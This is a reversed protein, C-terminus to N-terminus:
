LEVEESVREDLCSGGAYIRYQGPEVIKRGEQEMCIALDCPHVTFEVVREEGPGLRDIQIGLTFCACKEDLTMQSILWKAREADSLRADYLPTNRDM